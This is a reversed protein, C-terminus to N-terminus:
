AHYETYELISSRTQLQKLLIMTGQELQPDPQGTGLEVPGPILIDPKLGKGEILQGNPTYWRDSTYYLGGGDSLAELHNVSGKGFSKVGVLQARGHDQLAGALIESGSASFQNILIIMPMELVPGDRKVEWPQRKTRGGQEYVVLDKKLFLSAINASTSLLGGPNNRLDLIVGTAGERRAEELLDRMAEDSNGYFASLRIYAIKEQLMTWSVSEVTIRGRTVTIDIIEESGLNRIGLRVTTGAPGRVESVLRYISWGKVNQGEVTMLADGPRIGAGEAPSNPMPSLLFLEGRKHVHSGIGQYKGEFAQDEIRFRDPPIYATHPDNLAELFGRIAAQVLEQKTVIDDALSSSEQLYVWTHWVSALADPANNPLQYRQMPEYSAIMEISQTSTELMAEIAGEGLTNPDLAEPEVFSDELIEWVEWLPDLAQPSMTAPADPYPSAWCAQIVLVSMIGFTLFVALSRHRGKRQHRPPM